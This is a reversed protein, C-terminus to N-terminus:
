AKFIKVIFFLHIISLNRREQLIVCFIRASVFVTFFPGMRRLILSIPRILHSNNFDHDRHKTHFTIVHDCFIAIVVKVATM